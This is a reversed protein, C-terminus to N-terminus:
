IPVQDVAMASGLRSERNLSVSNSDLAGVPNGRLQGVSSKDVVHSAVPLFRNM